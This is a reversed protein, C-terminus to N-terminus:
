GMIVPAKIPIRANPNWLMNYIYKIAMTMSVFLCVYYFNQLM